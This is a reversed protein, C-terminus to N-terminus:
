SVRCRQTYAQARRDLEMMIEVSDGNPDIGIERLRRDEAIEYLLNEEDQPTWPRSQDSPLKRDSPM